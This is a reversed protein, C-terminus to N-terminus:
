GEWLKGKWNEQWNSWAKEVKEDLEERTREVDALVRAAEKDTKVGYEEKLQKVLQVLAGEAKDAERRVAEYESKLALFEDLTM